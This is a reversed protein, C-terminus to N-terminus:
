GSVTALEPSAERGPAATQETGHSKVPYPYAELLAFFIAASTLAAVLLLMAGDYSRTRDYFAGVVVAAPSTSLWLVPFFTGYIASFNRVGFYRTTFYSTMSTQGGCAVGFVLLLALTLPQWHAVRLALVSALSVVAFPLIVRPTDFRDLLVGTMIQAALAGLAMLSLGWAAVSVNVGHEIMIGAGHSYMGVSAFTGGLQAGLLLWYARGRIAESPGIRPAGDPILENTAQAESPKREIFFAWLTPLSILLVAGALIWYVRQWGLTDMLRKAVPAGVMRSAYVGVALGTLAIARRRFFWASILKSYAVAGPASLGLLFYAAYFLALNRGVLGLSAVLLGQVLVLPLLVRRPGLRDVVPGFCPCSVAVGASLATIAGGIAARSWGYDAAIRAMFVALVTMAMIQASFMTGIMSSLIVGVSRPTLENTAAAKM